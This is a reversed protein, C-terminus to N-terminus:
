LTGVGLRADYWVIRVFVTGVGATSLLACVYTNTPDAGVQTVTPTIMSSIPATVGDLINATTQASIIARAITGVTSSAGLGIQVTPSNTIAADDSFMTVSLPVAHTPLELPGGNNRDIVNWVTANSSGGTLTLTLIGDVQKLRNLGQTRQIQLLDNATLETGQINTFYQNGQIPTTM